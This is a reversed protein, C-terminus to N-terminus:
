KTLKKLYNKTFTKDPLKRLRMGSYDMVSRGDKHLADEMILQTPRITGGFNQYAQFHCTKILRNSLTFFEAKFPRYNAQNVWYLVRHYTVGRRSAKLELLYYTENGITETRLLAPEYDGTFNARALDGNAVEGTLKQSLPLRVPQSLNPLFAWLDHDRMLLITGKDIAPATTMLLTRDNGKSLVRYQKIEPFRIRDAKEVIQQPTIKAAAAVAHSAQGSLNWCLVILLAAAIRGYRLSPGSKGPASHSKRTVTPIRPITLSANRM